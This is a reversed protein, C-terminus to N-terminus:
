PKNKSKQEYLFVDERSASYQGDETYVTITIPTSSATIKSADGFISVPLDYPENAQLPLQKFRSRLTLGEVPELKVKYIQKENTKNVIKLVYSNEILGDRGVTSLQKRDHRIEMELPSRGVAVLTAATICAGLVFIYAFIRPSIVKTKQKEVLQRETTYRILGRPYGVKDMIENCADICAACQICEVQLGDRIDIGTPCVQVCMSCDVCDGYGEPHTGKKRAGRPEGREYDYSVILTDKDFMVSQFRGYPCIHVCMHERMYGANTQTVFTILLFFIWTMKGWGMFFPTAGNFFLYDTGTILAIFTLATIASILLWIAHVALLKAAKSVSWPEKDFKIRKNREGIIWKEIHQYLHVYITQPCAYGCWVRGAYVTVMFLTMAAIIFVFAFFYFDQPMFTAGFIYFKPEIVNFLIAQRGDWRIWPLILFFVMIAYMSFVRINQYKGTVFRPHVRHKTADM